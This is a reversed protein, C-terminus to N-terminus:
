VRGCLPDDTSPELANLQLIHESGELGVADGEKTQGLDINSAGTRIQAVSTRGRKQYLPHTDDANCPIDEREVRPDISRQPHYAGVRKHGAGDGRRMRGDDIGGYGAGWSWRM